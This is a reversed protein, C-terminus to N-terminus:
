IRKMFYLRYADDDISHRTNSWYFGYDTAKWGGNGGAAPLFISNGNFGTVKMGWEGKFKTRTWTCDRILEQIQTRTPLNMKNAEEWSYYNGYDEPSSAGANYSAWKVTLGLDIYDNENEKECSALALVLLIAIYITKKM